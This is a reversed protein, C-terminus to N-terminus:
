LNRDMKFSYKYGCLLIKVLTILHALVELRPKKATSTATLDLHSLDSGNLQKLSDNICGTYSVVNSPTATTCRKIKKTGTTEDQTIFNRGRLRCKTMEVLDEGVAARSGNGPASGAVNDIMSVVSGLECVSATLAKSSMSKVQLDFLIISYHNSIQLFKKHVAYYYWFQIASVVKILREFSEETANSKGSVTTDPNSHHSEPSTFDDLLPSASIGPTGIALSQAPVLTGATQHGTNGAKSLSSVASNVKESEELMPSPLTPTSPSPVISPSIAPQLPTGAKNLAILMNQQDVQPSGHHSIQPSAPPLLQPSSIPLQNGPKLQQHYASRQSESTYKQFASSNVSLQQRTQSDTSDSMHDVMPSHNSQMHAPQQLKTQKFQQQQQMLQKEMINQQMQRHQFQKLQPNQLFKEQQKLHQTLMSSSPQVTNLNAQVSNMGSQSSVINVNAQQPVTVPNQQVPGTAVQQVSNMSNSQGPGLGSSPQLSNIMSQQANSIGSLPSSPNHLLNPVNKQMTGGSGQLNQSRMQSNMQNEHPQIQTMQSQLPQSQQMSHMHPPPLSQEQQMPPIHKQPKNSNIISMIQKEYSGLKDKYGIQINSKSIQLLSIFRELM